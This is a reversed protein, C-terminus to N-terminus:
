QVNGGCKPCTVPRGDSPLGSGCNPCVDMRVQSAHVGGDRVDPWRLRGHVCEDGLFTPGFRLWKTDNRSDYVHGARGQRWSKKKDFWGTDGVASGLYIFQGCGFVPRRNHGSARKARETLLHVKGYDDGSDTILDYSELTDLHARVDGYEMDLDDALQNANRPREDLVRSIETRATGATTDLFLSDIENKGPLLRFVLRLM